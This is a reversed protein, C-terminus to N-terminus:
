AHRGPGGAPNGTNREIRYGAAECDWAAPSLGQDILRHKEVKNSPTRPLEGCFRRRLTVKRQVSQVTEGGTEKAEGNPFGAPRERSEM